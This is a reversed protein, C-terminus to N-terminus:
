DFYNNPNFIREIDKEDFKGEYREIIGIWENTLNIITNITEVPHHFQDNVKTNYYVKDGSIVIPTGYIVQWNESRYKHRQISLGIHPKIFIRNEFQYTYKISYWKSLTDIFGNPILLYKNENKFNIPDINIHVQNEYVYPDYIINHLNPNDSFYLKLPFSNLNILMYEQNPLIKLEMEENIFEYIRKGFILNNGIILIIKELNIEDNKEFSQIIIKLNKNSNKYLKTSKSQPIILKNFKNNM